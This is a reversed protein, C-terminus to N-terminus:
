VKMKKTQKVHDAGHLRNKPKKSAPCGKAKITCPKAFSFVAAFRPHNEKLWGAGSLPRRACDVRCLAINAPLFNFSHSPNEIQRICCTILIILLNLLM